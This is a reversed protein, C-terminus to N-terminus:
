KRDPGVVAHRLQPLLWAKKCGIGLRPVAAPGLYSTRETGEHAILKSKM